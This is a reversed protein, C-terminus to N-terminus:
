RGEEARRQALGWALADEPSDLVVVPVPWRLGFAAQSDRLRKGYYSGKTKAEVLWQQGTQASAVLLDPAGGGLGSLDLCAFGLRELTAVIPQHSADKRHSTSAYRSVATGVM